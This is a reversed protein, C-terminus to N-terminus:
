RAVNKENFVYWLVIYALIYAHWNDQCCSFISQVHKREEVLGILVM